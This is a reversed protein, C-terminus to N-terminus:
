LENSGVDLWIPPHVTGYVTFIVPAGEQMRKLEDPSPFWASQMIAYGSEDTCRRVHLPKCEEDSMDSPKGLRLNAGQIVGPIMPEDDSLM